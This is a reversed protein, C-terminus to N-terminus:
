GIQTRELIERVRYAFNLMSTRVCLRPIFVISIARAGFAHNDRSKTVRMFQAHTSNREWDKVYGLPKPKALKIIM